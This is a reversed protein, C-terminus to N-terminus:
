ELSSVIRPFVTPLWFKVLYKHHMQIEAHLEIENLLLLCIRLVNDFKIIVGKWSDPFGNKEM